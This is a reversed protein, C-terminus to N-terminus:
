MLCALCSVRKLSGFAFWTAYFAYAAMNLAWTIDNISSPFKNGSALQSYVKNFVKYTLWPSLEIQEVGHDRRWVNIEECLTRILESSDHSEVSDAGASNDEGASAKSEMLITKTPALAAASFFPARGIIAHIDEVSLPGVISAILLEFVRGINLLMTQKANTYFNHQALLDILFISKNKKDDNLEDITIKQIEKAYDWGKRTNVGVEAVPYPLMTKQLKIGTLWEEPLRKALSIAWASLDDTKEFREFDRWSQTLPQFLPTDFISGRQNSSESVTVMKWHQKALLLLYVAGAKPEYFFYDALRQVMTNRNPLPMADQPSMPMQWNKRVVLENKAFRISPPLQPILNSCHRVLQTLARISPIPLSLHSGELGNVPGALFIELWAIFNRLPMVESKEAQQSSDHLYINSQQWYSRVEPMNLRRPFPLIKRQYEAALEVSREYAEQRRYSSDKTLRGHFDRWTVDNYLERDGCVIPLVHPTALYRRVIELNEFARDLSTDVDDIPLILLKKELLGLVERFFDQVCDALQKNNYMARVKDMGHRDQQTEVSELSQALNELTQNLSRAKSPEKRQAEKVEKDHLVAAVIIHLFLSEGNELLTPDVPDLIHVDKLVDQDKLYSKLNVLVATKGTGRAGNISIANHERLENLSRGKAADAKKVADIIMQALPEYVEDRPLLTNADPLVASEGANLPIYRKNQSM